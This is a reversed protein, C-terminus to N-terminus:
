SRGGPREQQRSWAAYEEFYRNRDSHGFQSFQCIQVLIICKLHSFVWIGSGPKVTKHFQSATM